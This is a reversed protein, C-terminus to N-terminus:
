QKSRLKRLLWKKRLRKDLAMFTKVKTDDELLDCADLMLDDDIDPIGQLAEIVSEISNIVHKKNTGMSSVDSTKQAKSNRDTDSPTENARKRHQDDSLQVEDRILCPIERSKSVKQMEVDINKIQFPMSVEENSNKKRYVKCLDSYSVLVRDRYAIASPRVKIYEEWVDNEAFVMQDREDWLFGGHNLLNNIDIHQRMLCIYRNQLFQKDVLLGFKENFLDVMHAWGEENFTEDVKNHLENLMIHIFYNDMELTWVIKSPYIGAVLYADNEEGNFAPIEAASDAIQALRNYRGDLADDRFIIILKHYSPVTKVRYSRAEPHVKIYADWINDEAIIMERTEDWWFGNQELVFKIENYLRRLYKYRNKLIDKEHHSSFKANFSMLIDTWAQTIFTQGLKNGKNVQDLLLDIFYGDMPPTWYTRPRDGKEEGAKMQSTHYDFDNGQHEIEETTDNGFILVLDSYNPLTKSRAGVKVYADWISDDAAIILREEDWSFGDQKLIVGMDTCYKSLKKYRHRLVRKGHSGFKSHFLHTMDTWAQKSFTTGIKNGRGIQDMMLQIFYQDMPPIWQTRLRENGMGDGTNLIHHDEDDFDTDHSSRSYRGDATAYAFLLRLDNFNMVAKSKYPQVDPHDKIYTNWVHDDAIVMQRSQDWSFDNHTLLTNVDNFQKWLCTYRTKLVDKDYQSHFKSNFASLMHNWSHKNFTHGLRNGAHMQQLMLDIFYREMTSTWYTRSRDSSTTTPSEEEDEEEMDEM